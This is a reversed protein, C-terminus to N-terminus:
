YTGWRLMYMLMYLVYLAALVAFILATGLKKKCPLAVAAAVPLAACLYRVASLLWTCGVAVAFYPLFYAIHSAPLRRAAATMLVLSGFIMVLQPGWLSLLKDYDAGWASILRPVMYRPTDFFPCAKQYWNSWQFEFFKFPDGFVSWNIYLYALTGLTSILLGLALRAIVGGARKKEKALRVIEGIGVLALPVALLVGLSRTFGALATFVGALLFKKNNLCLFFCATFLMFVPESMPSNMFIAGPLLMYIFAAARSRKAGLAPLLALYTVGAALATAAANIILASIFGDGTVLNLGRVLAPFMPFFVIFLAENGENVYWHEAIDLYHQVDTNTKMWAVRFLNFFGGSYDTWKLWKFMLVGIFMAAFHIVLAGLCIFLFDRWKNKPADNSPVFDGGGSLVRVFSPVAAFFVATFGALALFPAIFHTLKYEGAHAKYYLAFVGAAALVALLRIIIVALGRGKKAEIKPV